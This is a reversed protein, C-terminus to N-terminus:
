GPQMTRRAYNTLMNLENSKGQVWPSTFQQQLFAALRKRNGQMGDELRLIFFQEAERSYRELSRSDYVDTYWRCSMRCIRATDRWTRPLCAFWRGSTMSTLRGSSRQQSIFIVVTGNKIRSCRLRSPNNATYRKHIWDFNLKRTLSLFIINRGFTHCHYYFATYGAQVTFVSKWLLPSLYFYLFYSIRQLM